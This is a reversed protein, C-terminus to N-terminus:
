KKTTIKKSPSWESYYRKENVTKYTRVQVFYKKGGKLGKKKFTIKKGSKILKSKAGSM